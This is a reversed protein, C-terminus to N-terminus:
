MANGGGCDSGAADVRGSSARAMSGPLRRGRSCGPGGEVNRTRRESSHQDTARGRGTKEGVIPSLQFAAAAISTNNNEM